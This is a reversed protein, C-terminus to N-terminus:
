LLYLGILSSIFLFSLLEIPRLARLANWHIHNKWGWAESGSIDMAKIYNTNGAHKIMDNWQIYQLFLLKHVWKEWVSRWVGRPLFFQSFFLHTGTQKTIDKKINTTLLPREFNLKLMPWAKMRYCNWPLAMLIDKTIFVSISVLKTAESPPWKSQQNNM